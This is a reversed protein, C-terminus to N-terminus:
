NSTGLIRSDAKQSNEPCSCIRRLTGSIGLFNTTCRLGTATQTRSTCDWLCDTTPPSAKVDKEELRHYLEKLDDLNGIRWARHNLGVQGQQQLPADEGGEMLAIEHSEDLNASM